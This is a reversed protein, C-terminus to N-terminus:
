SGASVTYDKGISEDKCVEVKAKVQGLAGQASDCPQAEKAALSSNAASEGDPSDTLGSPSIGEGTPPGLKSAGMDGNAQEGSLVPVEEANLAVEGNLEREEQDKMKKYHLCPISSTPPDHKQLFSFFFFVASLSSKHGVNVLFSTINLSTISLLLSCAALSQQMVRISGTGLFYPRSWTVVRTERHLYVPIGSNHFTMIWGDPLPETPPRGRGLVLSSQYLCVLELIDMEWMLSTANRLLHM